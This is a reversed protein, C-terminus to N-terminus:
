RLTPRTEIGAGQTGRTEGCQLTTICRFLRDPSSLIYQQHDLSLFTFIFPDAFPDPNPM